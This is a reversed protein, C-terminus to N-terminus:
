SETIGGKKEYKGTIIQEIAIKWWVALALFTPMKHTKSEETDWTGRVM